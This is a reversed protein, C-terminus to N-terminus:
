FPLQSSPIQDEWAKRKQDLEAWHDEDPVPSKFKKCIPNKPDLKRVVLYAAYSNIPDSKDLIAQVLGSPLQLKETV